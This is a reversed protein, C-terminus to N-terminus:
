YTFTSKINANSFYPWLHGTFSYNKDSITVLDKQLHMGYLGKRKVIMGFKFIFKDKSYDFIIAPYPIIKLLGLNSFFDYFDATKDPKIVEHYNRDILSEYLALVIELRANNPLTTNFTKQRYKSLDVVEVPNNIVASFFLTDGINLTDKLNSVLVPVNIRHQDKDFGIDFFCGYLTISFAIFIVSIKKM